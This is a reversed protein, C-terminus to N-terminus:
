QTDSGVDLQRRHEMLLSEAADNPGFSFMKVATEILVALNRGRSVRLKIKRLEKGAVLMTEGSFSLKGDNLAEQDKTLEVVLDIHIGDLVLSEGFITRVDIVGLDRIELLGKFM